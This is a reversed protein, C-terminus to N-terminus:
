KINQLKNIQKIKFVMLLQKLLQLEKREKMMSRYFQNFSRLFREQFSFAIIFVTVKLKKVTKSFM